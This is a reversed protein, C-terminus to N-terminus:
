SDNRAVGRKAIGFPKLVEIMESVPFFEKIFNAAVEESLCDTHYFNEDLEYYEEGEFIHERCTSCTYIAQPETAHPCRYDHPSRGCCDVLLYSM